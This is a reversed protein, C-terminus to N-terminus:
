LVSALKERIRRMRNLVAMPSTGGAMGRRRMEAGIERSSGCEDWVKVFDREEQTLLKWVEKLYIQSIIDPPFIPKLADVNVDELAVQKRATRVHHENMYVGKRCADLCANTAIRYLWTKIDAQYEFKQYGKMVKLQVEQRLDEWEPFKEIPRYRSWMSRCIDNCAKQFHASNMLKSLTAHEPDENATRTPQKM